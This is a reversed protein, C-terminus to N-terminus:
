ELRKLISQGCAHMLGGFAVAGLAVVMTRTTLEDLGHSVITVVPTLFGATLANVAFSNFLSAALKKRETESPTV